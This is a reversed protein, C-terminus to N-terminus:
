HLQGPINRKSSALIADAQAQEETNLHATSGEPRTGPTQRHELIRNMFDIPKKEFEERLRAEAGEEALWGRPVHSAKANEWAQDAARKEAEKAGERLRDAEAKEDAARKEAEAVRAELTSIKKELAEVASGQENSMENKEKKSEPEAEANAEVSGKKGPAVPSEGAEDGTMESLLARLSDLAQRLRGANKASIMKGANEHDDDDPVKEGEQNLFMAGKDRPWVAGPRQQSPRGAKFVLVHNPRARGSLAIGERACRFATSLSLEGRRYAADVEPDTFRVGAELRPQGTMEVRTDSLGGCVRGPTGEATQVSSLAAELDSEVLAPDPHDQAYILPVSDWEPGTGMFPGTGYWLKQDDREQMWRDLTQLIATHTTSSPALVGSHGFFCMGDEGGKHAAQDSM